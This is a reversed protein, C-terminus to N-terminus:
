KKLFSKMQNVLDVSAQASTKQGSYVAAFERNTAEWMSNTQAPSDIYQKFTIAHPLQDAYGQESPPFKLEKLLSKQAPFQRYGKFAEASLLFKLFEWAQDPYKTNSNITLTRGGLHSVRKASGRPDPATALPVSSQGEAARFTYPPFFSIAFDGRALGGTLEPDGWSNVGILSKPSVGDTFFKNFYDMCGQVDQPTVGVQWTGDGAQEVFTKGNSWLYYNVLFWMGGGPASGAPFGFGYQDIKGDGNKDVTLKKAAQFFQDWNDPFSSIGAAKLLDPRYAMVFTDVTWPIGYISGQYIGLDTGLFDDIGAGPPSKKTFSDLNTLTGSSALDKTWVFAIQTVDPGGGAQAERIYQNLADSWPVTEAKVQIKNQQKNYEDIVAFLGKTEDPPDGQRFVLNVPGSPATSESKGGAWLTGAALSLVILLIAFKAFKM